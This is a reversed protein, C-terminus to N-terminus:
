TYEAYESWLYFVCYHFVTADWGQMSLEVDAVMSVM